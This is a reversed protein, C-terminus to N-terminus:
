PNTPVKTPFWDHYGGIANEVVVEIGNGTGTVITRGGQV